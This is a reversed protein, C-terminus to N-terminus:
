HPILTLIMDIDLYEILWRFESKIHDAQPAYVKCGAKKLALYFRKVM